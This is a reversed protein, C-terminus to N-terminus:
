VVLNGWMNSYTITKVNDYDSWEPIESGDDIVRYFKKDPYKKFNYTHQEIWNMPSVYKCDSTIYCDTDKYVNNVKGERPMDFGLMYINDTDKNEEIAVRVATPGSSWGLFEGDFFTDLDEVKDNDDVWTIWLGANGLKQRIDGKPLGKFKSLVELMADKFREPDIGHCVLQTRNGKENQHLFKDVTDLDLSKLQENLQQMSSQELGTYQLMEFFQEPLLKWQRFYCKNESCYGSSYIEHMMPWDTSILGDPQYDRYLANCGYIKGWQKFQNLDIGDRSEGNGLAFVNKPKNAEMILDLLSLQKM